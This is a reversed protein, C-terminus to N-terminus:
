RPHLHGTKLANFNKKHREHNMMKEGRFVRFARLMRFVRVVFSASRIFVTM